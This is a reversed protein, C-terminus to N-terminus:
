DERWWESASYGQAYLLASLDNHEIRAHAAAATKPKAHYAVGLGAAEIMPVDNAGDGVALTADLPIRAAEAEALLTAKKVASDVVPRAVTGTLRGGEIGLTNSIARDFGIDRAVEDAFVTFGGSVLVARAGNAKMTRVLAKAGPMIKVREERCRDIMAAELGGLLKVRADLAGVFDLEGRMAAETVKAVQEKIGAYDALEDICEITIMTSDMDAIILGRRRPGPTQVVVDVRPLLDELAARAAQRDLGSIALDAAKGMDLWDAAGATGGAAAVADRAASIDGAKLEGAAILTAILM